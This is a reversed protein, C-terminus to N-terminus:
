LGDVKNLRNLVWNLARRYVREGWGWGDAALQTKIAARVERVGDIVAQAEDRETTVAALEAELDDCRDQLAIYAEHDTVAM